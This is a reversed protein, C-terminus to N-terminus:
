EVIPPVLSIIKFGSILKTKFSFTLFHTGIKYRFLTFLREHEWIQHFRFTIFVFKANPIYRGWQGTGKM